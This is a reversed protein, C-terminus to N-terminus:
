CGTNKQFACFFLAPAREGARMKKRPRSDTCSRRSHRLMLVLESQGLLAPTVGRSRMIEVRQPCPDVGPVVVHFRLTAGRVDVDVVLVFLLPAEVAVLLAPGLQLQQLRFETGEHLCLAGYTASQALLEMGLCDLIPLRDARPRDSLRPCLPTRLRLLVLVVRLDRRQLPELIAAIRSSAGHLAGLGDNCKQANHCRALLLHDEVDPGLLVVVDLEIVTHVVQELLLSTRPRDVVVDGLEEGEVEHGPVLDGGLRHLIDPAEKDLDVGVLLHPGEAQAPEGVAHRAVRRSLDHLEVDSFRRGVALRRLHLEVGQDERDVAGLELGVGEVLGVLFRVLLEVAREVIGNTHAEDLLNVLFLHFGLAELVEGAAPAESHLDHMPRFLSKHELGLEHHGGVGVWLQREVLKPVLAQQPAYQALGVLAHEGDADGVVGLRIDVVTVREPQIGEALSYL